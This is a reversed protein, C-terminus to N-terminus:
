VRAAPCTKMTHGVLPPAVADAAGISCFLTHMFAGYSEVNEVTCFFDHPYTFHIVDKQNRLYAKRANIGCPGNFADMTHYEYSLFQKMLTTDSGSAGALSFEALLIPVTNTATDVSLMYGFYGPLENLADGILGLVSHRKGLSVAGTHIMKFALATGSNFATLLIDRRGAASDANVNTLQGELQQFRSDFLARRYGDASVTDTSEATTTPDTTLCGGGGGGGPLAAGNSVSTYAALVATVVSEATAGAVAAATAFVAAYQLAAAELDPLIVLFDQGRLEERLATQGFRQLARWANPPTTALRIIYQHLTPARGVPASVLHPSPVLWYCLPRACSRALLCFGADGELCWRAPLGGEGPVFKHQCPTKSRM